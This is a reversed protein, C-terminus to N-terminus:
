NEGDGGSAISQVYRQECHLCDLGCCVATVPCVAVLSSFLLLHLAEGVQDHM